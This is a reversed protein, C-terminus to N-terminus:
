NRISVKQWKKLDTVRDSLQFELGYAITMGIGTITGNRLISSHSLVTIYKRIDRLLNDHRVGM